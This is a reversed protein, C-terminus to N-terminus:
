KLKVNFFNQPFTGKRGQRTKRTYQVQERAAGRTREQRATRKAMVSGSSPSASTISVSFSTRLVGLRVARRYLSICFLFSVNVIPEYKVGCINRSYLFFFMLYYKIQLTGVTCLSKMVCENGMCLANM